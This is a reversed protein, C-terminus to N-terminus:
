FYGLENLHDILERHASQLEVLNTVGLKRTLAGRLRIVDAPRTTALNTLCKPDNKTDFLADTATVVHFTYRLDGDNMQVITPMGSGSTPMGSGSTTDASPILVAIGAFAAILLVALTARTTTTM